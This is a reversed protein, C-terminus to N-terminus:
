SIILVQFSILFLMPLFIFANQHKKINILHLRFLLYNEEVQTRINSIADDSLAKLSNMDKNKQLDPECVKDSLKLSPLSKIKSNGHYGFENIHKRLTQSFSELNYFTRDLAKPLFVNKYLIITIEKKLNQKNLWIDMQELCRLNVDNGSLNIQKLYPFTGSFYVDSIENNCLNLFQVNSYMSSNAPMIFLSGSLRNKPLDVKHRNTEFNGLCVPKSEPQAFLGMEIKIEDGKDHNCSALFFTSHCVLIFRILRMRFFMIAKGM